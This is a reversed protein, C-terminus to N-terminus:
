TGKAIVETGPDGVRGSPFIGVGPKLDPIGACSGYEEPGGGALHIGRRLVHGRCVFCSGVGGRHLFYAVTSILGATFFQVCSIVVGDAKPSVYDIVLIHFSFCVACLFVYVDGRSIKLGETMCLLYMGMTALAVSLWVSWPIKKKLFVGLLPVIVIYLATIFGAKGVTTEAVGFQQFSSAVFLVVGCIIGGLIGARRRQGPQDMGKETQNKGHGDVGEGLAQRRGSMAWILPLLVAGGILFRCGNFTFPEVYEMGVSQAVFAVGWILAALGLLLNSGMNTRNM